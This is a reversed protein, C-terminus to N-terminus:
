TKEYRGTMESVRIAYVVAASSSAASHGAGAGRGHPHSSESVMVPMLRDLLRQMAATAAEGQLEEFRGQCIVSQWNSLSDLHDVEFCVDPNERMMRVKLGEATHGYIVGDAYVYTVPVVYTRHQAHCGIRGIMESGLLRTMQEANLTGMM